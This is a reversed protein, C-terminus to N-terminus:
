KARAKEEEEEKRRIRVQAANVKAMIEEVKGQSSSSITLYNPAHLTLFQNYGEVFLNLFERGNVTPRRQAEEMKRFHAFWLLNEPAYEQRCYEFFVDFGISGSYLFHETILNSMYESTYRLPIEDLIAQITADKQPIRRFRGFTDKTLTYMVEANVSDRLDQLIDEFGYHRRIGKKPPMTKTASSQEIYHKQLFYQQLGSGHNRPVFGAQLVSCVIRNLCIRM